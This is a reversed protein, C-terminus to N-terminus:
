EEQKDLQTSYRAFDTIPRQDHWYMECSLCIDSEVQVNLFGGCLSCWRWDLERAIQRGELTESLRALSPFSKGTCDLHYEVYFCTWALLSDAGVLKAAQYRHHGNNIAYNQHERTMGSVSIPPFDSGARYLHAYKKVKCWDPHDEVPVLLNLPIRILEDYWGGTEATFTRDNLTITQM